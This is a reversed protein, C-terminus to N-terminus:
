GRPYQGTESWLASNSNQVPGPIFRRETRERANDSSPQLHKRYQRYQGSRDQHCGDHHNDNKLDPVSPVPVAEPLLAAM